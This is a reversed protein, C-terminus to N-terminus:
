LKTLLLHLSFEGKDGVKKAHVHVMANLKQTVNLSIGTNLSHKNVRILSADTQFRYIGGRIIKM